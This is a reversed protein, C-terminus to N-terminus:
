HGVIGSLKIGDFKFYFTINPPRKYVRYKFCGKEQFSCKGPFPPQPPPLLFFINAASSWFSRYRAKFFISILILRGTINEKSIAVQLKVGMKTKKTKQNKTKKQKQKTKKTKLKNIIVLFQRRKPFV